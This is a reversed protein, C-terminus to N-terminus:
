AEKGLLWQMWDLLRRRASFIYSMALIAPFVIAAAALFGKSSDAMLLASRLGAEGGLAGFVILIVFRPFGFAAVSV